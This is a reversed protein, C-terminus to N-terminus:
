GPLGRAIRSELEPIEKARQASLGAFSRAARYDLRRYSDPPRHRRATRQGRQRSQRLLAPHFSLTKRRCADARIAPTSLPDRGFVTGIARGAWECGATPHRLSYKARGRSDWRAAGRLLVTGPSSHENAWRGM